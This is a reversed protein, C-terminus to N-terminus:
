TGFTLADNFLTDFIREISTSLKTMSYTHVDCSASFPRGGESAHFLISDDGNSTIVLGVSALHVGGLMLHFRIHLKAVTEAGLECRDPRARGNMAQDVIGGQIRM